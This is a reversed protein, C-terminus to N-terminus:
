SSMTARVIPSVKPPNEIDQLLRKALSSAGIFLDGKQGGVYNLGFGGNPMCVVLAVSSLRGAKADALVGELMQVVPNMMALQPIPSISGNMM